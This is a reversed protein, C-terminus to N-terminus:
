VMFHTTSLILIPCSSFCMSSCINSFWIWVKLVNSFLPFRFFLLIFAQFFLTPLLMGGKSARKWKRWQFGLLSFLNAYKNLEPRHTSSIIRIGKKVRSVYWLLYLELLVMNSQDKLKKYIDDGKEWWKRTKKPQM